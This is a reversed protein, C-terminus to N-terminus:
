DDDAQDPKDQGGPQAPQDRQGPRSPPNSEVRQSDSDPRTSTGDPEDSEQQQSTTPPGSKSTPVDAVALAFGIITLALAVVVTAVRKRASIASTTTAAPSTVVADVLTSVGTELPGRGVRRQWLMGVLLAFSIQVLYLLWPDLEGAIGAFVVHSTYFTLTMAGAAALPAQAASAMRLTRTPRARDLGRDLLLVAGLVLLSTGITRAM